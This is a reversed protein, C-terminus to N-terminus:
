GPDGLLWIARKPPESGSTEYIVDIAIQGAANTRHTDPFTLAGGSMNPPPAFDLIRRVTGNALVMDVGTSLALEPPSGARVRYLSLRPNQGSSDVTQVRVWTVNPGAPYVRVDDSVLSGFVRAGECAAPDDSRIALVPKGPSEEIWLASGVTASANILSGRWAVRGEDSVFLPATVAADTTGPPLGSPPAGAYPVVMRTTGGDGLYVYTASQGSAADFTGATFLVQGNSTSGDISLSSIVGPGNPTNQGEEYLSDVVGAHAVYIGRKGLAADDRVGEFLVDGSDTVRLAGLWLFPGGVPAPDGAAVLKELCATSSKKWLVTQPEAASPSAADEIFAMTGTGNMAIYGTVGVESGAFTRVHRLEDGQAVFLEQASVGGLNSTALAPFAGDDAVATPFGSGVGVSLTVQKGGLYLAPSPTVKSLSHAGLGVSSGLNSAPIPSFVTYGDKGEGFRAVIAGADTLTPFQLSPSSAEITHEEVVEIPIDKAVITDCNPPPCADQPGGGRARSSGGGSSCAPVVHITGTGRYAAYKARSEITYQTDNTGFASLEVRVQQGTFAFDYGANPGGVVPVTVDSRDFSLHVPMPPVWSDQTLVGTFSNSPPRELVLDANGDQAIWVDPPKAAPDGEGWEAWDPDLDHGSPRQGMLVQDYYGGNAAVHLVDSLVVVPDTRSLDGAWRDYMRALLYSHGIKYSYEGHAAAVVISGVLGRGQYLSIARESFCTEVILHAKRGSGGYTDGLAKAIFDHEIQGDQPAIQHDSPTVQVTKPEAALLDITPASPWNNPTEPTGHGEMVLYLTQCGQAFTDKLVAPLAEWTILAETESPWFRQVGFTDRFFARSEAVTNTMQYGTVAVACFGPRPKSLAQASSALSQPSTTVSGDAGVIPRRGNIALPPAWPLATDQGAVRVLPWRTTKRSVVEADCTAAVAGDGVAYLAGGHGLRAHPAEDVWALWSPAGLATVKEKGGEEAVLETGAPLLIPGQVRPTDMAATGSDPQADVFGAIAAPDATADIPDPWVLVPWAIDAEFGSLKTVYASLLFTGPYASAHFTAHAVGNADTTTVLAFPMSDDAGDFTGSPGVDPALFAVQIGPAPNGDEDLARVGLSAEGSPTLTLTSATEYPTLTGDWVELPRTPKPSDPSSSSCAGCLGVWALIWVGRGLADVVM